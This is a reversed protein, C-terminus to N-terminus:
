KKLKRAYNTLAFINDSFVIIKDNRKEHYSILFECARFKNPNM